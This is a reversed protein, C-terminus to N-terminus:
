NTKAGLGKLGVVLTKKEVSCKRNYEYDRAFIYCGREHSYPDEGAFDNEPGLVPPTVVM